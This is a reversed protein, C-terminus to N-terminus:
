PVCVNMVASVSPQWKDRHDALDMWNGSGTLKKFNLLLIIRGDVGLDEEKVDRWWFAKHVEEIEWM